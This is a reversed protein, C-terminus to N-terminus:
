DTKNIKKIKSWKKSYIKKGNVTKYAKVRVFYYKKAKQLKKKKRINNIKVNIKRTFKTITKKKNFKKNVSVQIKYGKANKVKKIKIILSKKKKIKVKKIRARAPRKVVTNDATTVQGGSSTGAPVTTIDTGASSTTTEEQSPMTTEGSPNSPTTTEEQSPTTTGSMKYALGEETLMGTDTDFLRTYETGAIDSSSDIFWAYREVYDLSELLETVQQIYTVSAEHTLEGYNTYGWWLPEVNISGIETIWIPINYKNHLRELAEKLSQVSGPHTFDQYVHLTLFDVRYGKEEAKTMFEEVWADEVSAGAPSGLRLGTEMLQPWLALAEDVTMNSQETLDPENFTLLNNYLGAEKGAKLKDLETDNVSGAGWLMPVYEMGAANAEEAAAQTNGWNYLWTAGVNALIPVNRQADDESAYYWSCVGKKDSFVPDDNQKKSNELADYASTLDNKALIVESATADEKAYVTGANDLAETFTQWAADSGNEKETDSYQEIVKQLEEKLSVVDNNYSNIGVKAGTASIGGTGVSGGQGNVIHTIQGKGNPNTGSLSVTCANTVKTGESVEMANDLIMYEQTYIFVEYIGLAMAEHYAVNDSVKYSAYGNSTGNNSMWDKQYPVDYPLESQYFYVRGNEGNWLTQYQQFHEVFLGYVTVNDGNVVLGNNATSETWSAGAGHDARWLWFHDGIVDNSNIEVCKDTKGIRAGGVRCFVDSLLIPNDSHGIDSKETGIQVLTDSGQEGAEIILGAITLGDVDAAKIATDTNKCVITALGLGLVVTDPNSIELPKEVEYIGPTLILNKGEKLAANITDANDTDAKAIYFDDISISKGVGMDDESWSVDQANERIGPVFVAYEGNDDIYLFPKERIVPTENVTTYAKYGTNAWDESSAPANYCGLFLMNWCSDYWSETLHTNRVMFQQQSWSGTQGTVYTDALFGGSATTGIDDLHLKGNIYLRRMPAAQSAGYKVETAPSGTEVALNEIGRWFNILVNDSENKDVNINKIQTDYPTQGLGLVQTYFGINITNIDYNGPKFVIAYRDDTFESLSARMQVDSIAKIESNIIDTDDTPSYLNLTDGFLKIDLAMADSQESELDDANVSSIKYYYDYVSGTVTETYGNTDTTGVKEFTSYKGTSRYVNYSTAYQANDWTLSIEKENYTIDLNDPAEARPSSLTKASVIDSEESKLDECLTVVKYYYTKGLELGMDVFKPSVQEGVKEYVGERTEARYIEFGTYFGNGAQISLSISDMERGAVTVEPKQPQISYNMPLVVKFKEADGVTKSTPKLKYGDSSDVTVYNDGNTSFIAVTGDEQMEFRFVEWGTTSNGSTAVLGAGQGSVSQNNYPSRLAVYNEFRSDTGEVTYFLANNPLSAVNELLSIDGDAKLQNTSTDIQVVKNELVSVFYMYEPHRRGDTVVPPDTEQADSSEELTTEDVQAETTASETVDEEVGEPLVRIFKEAAEIDTSGPILENNEDLQVYAGQTVDSSYGNATRIAYTGDGANEFRMVEWGSASQGGNARLGGDSVHRASVSQNNFVSRIAVFGEFRADTSDVTYFLANDPMNEVDDLMSIDGDAVLDTTSENVQVIKGTSVSILYMYQSHKAYTDQGSKVETEGFAYMSLSTLVLVLSMIFSVLKKWRKRKM